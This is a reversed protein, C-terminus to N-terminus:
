KRNQMSTDCLVHNKTIALISNKYKTLMETRLEINWCTKRILSNIRKSAAEFSVGFLHQIVFPNVTITKAIQRIVLEPALLEAAFWHAEIEQRAGDTKHGLYIHGLEHALTWNLREESRSTDNDYLIIYNNASQITYGDHSSKSLYLDQIPIGTLKAYNQFTDIIIPFDFQMKKVDLALSDDPQNLRLLKAAYEADDFNPKM